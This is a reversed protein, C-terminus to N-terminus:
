VRRGLEAFVQEADVAALEGSRYAAIRDVAEKIWQVDLSLDPKDLSFILNKVLAARDNKPLKLSQDLVVKVSDAM